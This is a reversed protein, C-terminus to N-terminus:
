ARRRAESSNPTVPFAQSARWGQRYLFVDLLDVVQGVQPPYDGKWSSFSFTVSNTVNLDGCRKNPFAVVYGEKPDQGEQSDKVSSITVRVTDRSPDREKSRNM